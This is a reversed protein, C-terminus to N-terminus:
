ETKQSYFAVTTPANLLVTATGEETLTGNNVKYGLYTYGDKNPATLTVVTGKAYYEDQMVEASEIEGNEDFFVALAYVNYYNEATTEETRYVEAVPTFPNFGPDFYNCLEAIIDDILMRYFRFNRWYNLDQEAMNQYTMTGINGKVHLYHTLKKGYTTQHSDERAGESEQSSNSDTYSGVSRGNTVADEQMNGQEKNAYTSANFAARKQTATQNKSGLREEESIAGHTISSSGRKQRAAYNDVLVDRGSADDNGEETRDYNTTPDYEQLSLDYWHQYTQKNAYLYAYVDERFENLVEAVTDLEEVNDTPYFSGAHKAIYRDIEPYRELYEAMFPLTLLKGYAGLLPANNKSSTKWLNKITAKREM